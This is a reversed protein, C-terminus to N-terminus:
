AQRAMLLPSEQVIEFGHRAYWTALDRTDPMLMLAKGERSAQQCIERLMQSAYGKRRESEPTLHECDGAYPRTLSGSHSRQIAAQVTSPRTSINRTEDPWGDM